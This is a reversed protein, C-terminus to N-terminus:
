GRATTISSPSAGPPLPHAAHVCTAAARRSQVAQWTAPAYRGCARCHKSLLPKAVRCVHCTAPEASVHRLSDAPAPEASVARVYGPDRFGTTIGACAVCLLAAGLTLAPWADHLRPLALLAACTHALALAAAFFIPLGRRACCRGAVREASKEADLLYTALQHSGRAGAVSAATRGDAGFDRADISAYRILAKALQLQMALSLAPAGGEAGSEENAEGDLLPSLKPSTAAPAHLGAAVPPSVFGAARSADTPSGNLSVSGGSSTATSRLLAHLASSGGTGGGAGLALHHLATYGVRDRGGPKSAALVLKLVFGVPAGHAAAVHVPAVETTAARADADARARLLVELSALRAPEDIHAPAACLHHMCTWGDADAQDVAAGASLLLTLCRSAGLRAALLLPPLPPLAPTGHPLAFSPPLEDLRAGAAVLERLADADDRSICAAVGDAALAMPRTSQVRVLSVCVSITAESYTAERLRAATAGTERTPLQRHRPATARTM